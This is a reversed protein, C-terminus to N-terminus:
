HLAVSGAHDCVQRTHAHDGLVTRGAGRNLNLMASKAPSTSPRRMSKPPVCDEDATKRSGVGELLGGLGRVWGASRDSAEIGDCREGVDGAGEARRGEGIAESLEHVAVEDSLVKGNKDVHAVDVCEASQEVLVGAFVDSGFIASTQILTASCSPHTAASLSSSWSRAVISQPSRTTVASCSSECARLCAKPIILSGDPVAAYPVDDLAALEAATGGLACACDSQCATSVPADPVKAVRSVLDLLGEKASGKEEEPIAVSLHVVKAQRGAHANVAGLVIVIDHRQGDVRALEEGLEVKGQDAIM